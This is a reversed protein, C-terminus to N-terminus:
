FNIKLSERDKLFNFSKNYCIMKQILLGFRNILGARYELAKGHLIM